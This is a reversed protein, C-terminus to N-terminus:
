MAKRWSDVRVVRRGKAVVMVIVLVIVVGGCTPPSMGKWTM